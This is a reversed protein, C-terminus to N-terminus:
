PYRHLLHGDEDIGRDLARHLSVVAVLPEDAGRVAGCEAVKWQCCLFRELSAIHVLTRELASLVRTGNQPICDPHGAIRAPEDVGIQRSVSVVPQSATAAIRLNRAVM